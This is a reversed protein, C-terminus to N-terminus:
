RAQAAATARNSSYSRRICRVCRCCCSYCSCRPQVLVWRVSSPSCSAVYMALNTTRAMLPRRPAAGRFDNLLGEVSKGSKPGHCVCMLGDKKMTFRWFYSPDSEQCPSTLLFYPPPTLLATNPLSGCLLTKKGSESLM